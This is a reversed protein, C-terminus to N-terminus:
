NFLKNFSPKWETYEPMEEFSIELEGQLLRWEKSGGKHQHNPNQCKRSEMRIGKEKLDVLRRRYDVCYTDIFENVCHWNNDELIKLIEQQKSLKDM